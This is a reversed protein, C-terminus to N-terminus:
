ATKKKRIIMLMGIAGIGFLLYTSPEPVAQAVFADAIVSHAATTPHIGDWFAYENPNAGPVAGSADTANTFGYAVPNSGIASGLGYINFTSVGSIGNLATALAVNMQSALQSGTASALQGQSMIAPAIGLNPTNWVIINQAGATKLETAITAINNAFSTATDQIIQSADGPSALIASFAARADNGGGEIVYLATSSATHSGLYQSAQDLMSPPFGGAGTTGTTAGGYAYNLGGQLSPLLPLGLASAAYSAWVQGNCYTTGPAYPYTPIYSNNSVTQTQSGMVISNNGSDSVSDGFIVMASFPTGGSTEAHLPTFGFLGVAVYLSIIYQKM